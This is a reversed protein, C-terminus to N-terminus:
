QGGSAEVLTLIAAKIHKPLRHWTTAVREVGGEAESGTPTRGFLSLAPKKGSQRPGTVTVVPFESVARKLVPELARPIYNPPTENLAGQM